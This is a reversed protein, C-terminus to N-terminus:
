VFCSKEQAKRKTCEVTDFSRTSKQNEKLISYFFFFSGLNRPVQFRPLHPAIKFCGFIEFSASKPCLCGLSTVYAVQILRSRLRTAECCYPFSIPPKDGLFYIFLESRYSRYVRPHLTLHLRALFCQRQESSGSKSINLPHSM